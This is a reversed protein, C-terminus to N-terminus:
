LWPIDRTTSDLVRTAADYVGLALIADQAAYALAEPWKQHGPVVSDLPIERESPKEIKTEEIREFRRHGPTTIRKRCPVAGCECYTIRKTRIIYDMYTEKFIESFSSIKGEGLIDMGLSDLSFGAGRARDPWAWRALSLTNIGGNLCVLGSNIAHYDVPLNHVAKKADSELWAKMPAYQLAWSPLVAAESERVGRPTIKKKPVAVSWIHVKARAACSQKGVEVGTFETDLGAIDVAWLAAVVKDIKESTDAYFPLKHTSKEMNM